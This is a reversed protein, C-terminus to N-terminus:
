GGPDTWCGDLPQFCSCKDPEVRSYECPSIAKWFGFGLEARFDYAPVGWYREAKWTIVGKRPIAMPKAVKPWGESYCAGRGRLVMQETKAFYDGLKAVEAAISADVREIWVVRGGGYKQWRASLIKQDIYNWPALVLNVHLRGRKTIEWTCAYEM